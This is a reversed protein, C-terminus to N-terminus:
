RQGSRIPVSQTPVVSQVTCPPAPTSVDLVDNADLCMGLRTRNFVFFGGSNWAQCATRFNVMYVEARRTVAVASTSSVMHLQEIQEFDLCAPAAPAAAFSQTGTVCAAVVAALLIRSQMTVESAAIM